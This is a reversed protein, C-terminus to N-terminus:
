GGNKGEEPPESEAAHDVPPLIVREATFGRGRVESASSVTFFAEPDIKQVENKLRAVERQSVVTMVLRCTEHLYGTEGHLITVGRNLSRFIMERIEAYKRSIILVQARRTGIPAVVELAASSLVNIIIGYLVAELSVAVLQLLIIIGDLLWLALSVHMGLYKHALLAPIDTGGTSAGIRVVVGIGVGFMLSGMCIALMADDSAIAHGYKEVYLMNLQTFVTLFTPYLLTGALTALAFKKGLLLAGIIFLVGNVIYVTVEVIWEQEASVLNRILIGIGTVGGMVFDNPIIFLASAAASMANGFCVILFYLVFRKAQNATPKRFKM